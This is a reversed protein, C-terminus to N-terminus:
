DTNFQDSEIYLELKIWDKHRSGNSSDMIRISGDPLQWKYKPKPKRLKAKHEESKPKNKLAKSVNDNWEETHVIKQHAISIKQKTEESLHQGSLSKNGVGYSNGLMRQKLKEKNEESMDHGKHGTLAESIHQKWSESKNQVAKLFKERINPNQMAIKTNESIKSYIELKESESKYSILNGGEGGEAINYYAQGLDKYYKIWYKEKEDAEVKDACKYLITRQFNEKGYKKIASVLKIGSGLYSDSEEPGKLLHQGIYDHNNIINITRYIIYM